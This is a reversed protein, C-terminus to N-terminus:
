FLELLVGCLKSLTYPKELFKYGSNELFQRDVKENTYGSCLLVKLGPKRETIDEILEVGNKGPLITDTFLLDVKSRNERFVVMAEEASAAKLIEFDLSSLMKDATELLGEEDEVLLVTKGEFSPLNLASVKGSFKNSDSIAPFYVLFETGKDPTSNVLVRGRHNEVVGFVVSLGLGTGKGEPKTTYFPEFIRELMEQSMGSGSDQFRIKVLRGKLGTNLSEESGEKLVTNESEIVLVGGDEMADRANISINMIMQQLNVGDGMIMWLDKGLRTKLQIDEGMLRILMDVSDKILDNLQIPQFQSIQNRSYILLKKILQAARDSAKQIASFSAYHPSEKDMSFLNLDTHGIIVALINNLDHAIGGALKGIAEMKQSQILQTHLKEKEEEQKKFLSIDRAIFICETIQQSEMHLPVLVAYVPQLNGESSKLLIDIEAKENKLCANEVKQQVLEKEMDTLFRSINQLKLEETSVGLIDAAGVNAFLIDGESNLTLVVDQMNQIVAVSKKQVVELRKREVVDWAMDALSQVLKVDHTDYEEKKNGVGLIVRIKGGRFVPVVLERIVPAHGEPLGKKHPLSAYDNHIVPKGERVCDVWVGAQEVPYHAGKSNTKCMNKMTNTSWHQLHLTKQDEDMFHFFGIQSGTLVEAEDLFKQLVEDLSHTSSFRSLEMSIGLLKKGSFNEKHSCAKKLINLRSRIEAAGQSSSFIEWIGAQYLEENGPIKKEQTWGVLPIDSFKGNTKLLKIIEFARHSFFDLNLVVMKPAKIVKELYAGLDALGAEQLSKPLDVIHNLPENDTSIKSTKQQLHESQLAELVTAFVSDSPVNGILYVGDCVGSADDSAEM